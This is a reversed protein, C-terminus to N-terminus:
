RDRKHRSDESSDGERREKKSSAPSSEPQRNPNVRPEPIVQRKREPQVEPVVRRRSEPQREPLAQKKPRSSEPIIQKQPERVPERRSSPELTKTRSSESDRRTERQKERDPEPNVLKKTQPNSDEKERKSNGPKLTRDSDRKRTDPQIERTGEPKKLKDPTNPIVVKKGPETGPKLNKDSERGRKDPRMDRASEPNRVKDSTGPVVGPNMDKGSPNRRDSDRSDRRKPPADNGTADVPRKSVLPSRDRKDRQVIDPKRDEGGSPRLDTKELRKRDQGFKRVQQRQEVIKDRNERTVKEFRQDERHHEVYRDLPQAFLENKDRRDRRGADPRAQLDKWTRPPRADEHDRFYNYDDIRRREWDRDGRHQWRNHVYIPDYGRHGSVYLHPAYYGHNRYRPAYYDGFYYHCYTPRVFMHSVFANLSIVVVPTYAYGPRVYVDHRIRVPAFIMGRRDIDHDWYGGVFVYGRPTWVYHAPIWVWRAQAPEWYGPTWAYRNERYAWNGSVWVHNESPAKINPGSEISKPPEPLYEVERVQQDAWYGSTWQWAGQDEAWYGPVWERDPPLNRWIGSIWIFDSQDEDWGWYGPIWAVNDGEPRQDPPVEEIQEPPAKDVRLGAEPNFSVSAAFAEHVPGRTLEEVDQEQGAAPAPLLPSAGALIAALTGIIAFNGLKM